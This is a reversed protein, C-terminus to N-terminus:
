EEAVFSQAVHSQEATSCITISRGHAFEINPVNHAEDDSLTREGGISLLRVKLHFEVCSIWKRQTLERISESPLHVPGIPVLASVIESPQETTRLKLGSKREEAIMQGLTPFSLLELVPHLLVPV